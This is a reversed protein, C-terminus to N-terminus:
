PLIFISVGKPFDSLRNIDLAPNAERKKMVHMVPLSSKEM